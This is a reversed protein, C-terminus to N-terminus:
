PLLYIPVIEYRNIIDEKEYGNPDPFTETLDLNNEQSYKILSEKSASYKLIRESTEFKLYVSQETNEQLAYIYEMIITPCM